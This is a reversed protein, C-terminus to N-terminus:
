YCPLFLLRSSFRHMLCNNVKSTTLMATVQIPLRRGSIAPWALSLACSETPSPGQDGLNPFLLLSGEEAPTTKQVCLSMRLLRKESITKREFDHGVESRTSSTSVAQRNFHLRSSGDVDSEIRVEKGTQVCRNCPRKTECALHKRKCNVCASPVHAKARRAIGPAGAILHQGEPSDKPSTSLDDNSEERLPAIGNSSQVSTRSARSAGVGSSSPPTSLGLPQEHHRANSSLGGHSSAPTHKGSDSRGSKSSDSHKRHYNFFQQPTNAFRSQVPSASMPPSLYHGTSQLDRSEALPPLHIKLQQCNLACRPSAVLMQQGRHSSEHLSQM